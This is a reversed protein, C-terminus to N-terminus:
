HPLLVSHNLICVTSSSWGPHSIWSCYMYGYVRALDGGILAHTSEEQLTFITSCEKQLLVTGSVSCASTPISASMVM